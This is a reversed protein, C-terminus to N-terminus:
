INERHGRNNAIMLDIRIVFCYILLSSLSYFLFSYIITSILLHVALLHSEHYNGDDLKDTEGSTTGLFCFLSTYLLIFFRLLSLTLLLFSLSTIPPKPNSSAHSVRGINGAIITGVHHSRRRPQPSHLPFLSLFHPSLRFPFPSPLM